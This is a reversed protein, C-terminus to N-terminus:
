KKRPGHALYRARNVDECKIAENGLCCGYEQVNNSSHHQCHRVYGIIPPIPCQAEREDKRESSISKMTENASM